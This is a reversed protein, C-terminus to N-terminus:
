LLAVLEDLNATQLTRRDEEIDHILEVLRATLPTPVGLQAGIAVIPGLQADM